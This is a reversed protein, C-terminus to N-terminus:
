GYSALFDLCTSVHTRSSEVWASMHTCLCMLCTSAYPVYASLTRQCTLAFARLVRQFKIEYGCTPVHARLCAPCTSVHASLYKLVWPENTLSCALCTLVHVRLCALCTLVYASLARKYTLVYAHLARRWTFVWLIMTEFNYNKKIQFPM